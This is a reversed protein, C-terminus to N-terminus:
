SWLDLRLEQILEFSPGDSIAFWYRCRYTDEMGPLEETFAVLQRSLNRALLTPVSVGLLTALFGAPIGIGRQGDPSRWPLLSEFDQHVLLFVVPYRVWSGVLGPRPCFCHGQQPCKSPQSDM